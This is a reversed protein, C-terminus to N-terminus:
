LSESELELALLTNLFGVGIVIRAGCNSRERYIILFFFFLPNLFAHWAHLKEELL